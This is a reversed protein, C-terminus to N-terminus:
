EKEKIIFTYGEGKCREIAQELSWGYMIVFSDEANVVLYLDEKDGYRIEISKDKFHDYYETYSLFKIDGYLPPNRDGANHSSSDKHAFWINRAHCFDFLKRLTPFTLWRFNTNCILLEWHKNRECYQYWFQNTMFHEHLIFVTEWDEPLDRTVKSAEYDELNAIDARTYYNGYEQLKLLTEQYDGHLRAVAERFPEPTGKLVAWDVQIQKLERM